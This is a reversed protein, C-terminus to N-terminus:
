WRRTSPPLALLNATIGILILVIVRLANIFGVTTKAVYIPDSKAYEDTIAM